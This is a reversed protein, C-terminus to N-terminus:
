AAESEVKEGAVEVGLTTGTDRGDMTRLRRLVESIKEYLMKEVEVPDTEAAVRDRLEAPLRLLGDRARIIVDSFWANVMVVPVLQGRKQAYELERLNALAAEKRLQAQSINEMGCVGWEDNNIRLGADSERRADGNQWLHDADHSILGTRTFAGPVTLKLVSNDLFFDAADMAFCEEGTEEFRIVPCPGEDAFMAVVEYRVVRGSRGAHPHSEAMVVRTGIPHRMKTFDATPVVIGSESGARKDTREKGVYTGPRDPAIGWDPRLTAQETGFVRGRVKGGSAITETRQRAWDIVQNPTMGERLKKSITKTSSGCQRALAAVNVNQM